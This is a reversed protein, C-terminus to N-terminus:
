RRTGRGRTGSGRAPLWPGGTLKTKRAWGEGACGGGLGGEGWRRAMLARGVEAVVGGRYELRGRVGGGGGARAMEIPTLAMGAMMALEGTSATEEM